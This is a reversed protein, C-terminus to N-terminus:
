ENKSGKPYWHLLFFLLPPAIYLVIRLAFSNQRKKGKSTSNYRTGVEFPM